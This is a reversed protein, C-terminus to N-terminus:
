SYTVRGINHLCVFFEPAEDICGDLDIGIAPSDSNM